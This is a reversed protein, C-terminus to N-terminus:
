ERGQLALSESERADEEQKRGSTQSSECAMEPLGGTPSIGLRLINKAANVDADFISGCNTCVFVSRSIRSAADVTSCDSCCQSTLAPDVVAIRSGYWPAKYELMTRIMRPSVDLLSRNENAKKQVLKGPAEITGRGSKTMEKVKLDEIVVVAHNKVITTTAKHVADKRRRAFKAQLRALRLRAKARNRSGKTRRALTQEATTLRKREEKTIRPMHVITGDSLVIPQVSGLDIGIEVGCHVPVVALEHEVQISAFWDGAVVSVTVNKVKGVIPRHMVMRTWGSKPLFIREEEIKIRTADPHRFSNNQGKKRFQPFRARGEFFNKFAKHLDLIAQQLSHNPPERLFELEGKLATLEKIQDFATLSRPKSRERELIKQDLCLNYVLRCCGITRRFLEEQTATPYIRFKYAKHVLM